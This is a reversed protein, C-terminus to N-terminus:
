GAVVSYGAVNASSAPLVKDSRTAEGTFNLLQRLGVQGFQYRTGKLTFSAATAQVLDAVGTAVAKNPSQV